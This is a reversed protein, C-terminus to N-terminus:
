REERSCFPRKPQRWSGSLEMARISVVVLAQESLKQIYTKQKERCSLDNIRNRAREVFRGIGNNILEDDNDGSAGIHTGNVGGEDAVQRKDGSDVGFPHILVDGGSEELGNDINNGGNSGGGDRTSRDM